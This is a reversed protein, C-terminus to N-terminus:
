DLAAMLSRLEATAVPRGLVQAVCEVLAPAPAAQTTAIAPQVRDRCARLRSQLGILRSVQQQMAARASPILRLDGADDAASAASCHERALRLRDRDRESMAGEPDAPWRAALRQQICVAQALPLPEQLWAQLQGARALALSDQELATPPGSRDQASSLGALGLGLGLSLAMALLGTSVARELLAPVARKM